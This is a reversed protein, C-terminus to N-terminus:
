GSSRSPLGQGNKLQIKETNIQLCEKYIINGSQTLHREELLCRPNGNGYILMLLIEQHAQREVVRRAAQM